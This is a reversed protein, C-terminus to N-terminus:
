TLSDTASSRRSRRRLPRPAHTRIRPTCPPKHDGFILCHRVNKRAYTRGPTEPRQEHKMVPDEAPSEILARCNRARHSQPCGSLREHAVVGDGAVDAWVSYPQSEAIDNMVDVADLVTVVGDGDVDGPLVSFNLGLNSLLPINSTVSHVGSSSTGNLALMLQDVGLATPLTWTAEHATSNYQFKSFPYLPLKAGTLALVGETLNVNDSFVIDIASIDTFPLDRHLNMISMTEKGWHIDVDTVKPHVTLTGPAFQFVYNTASLTGQTVTITYVGAADNANAPTSFSPAGSLVAQTDNRVFGTVTYSPTQISDGHNIDLNGATVTLTAATITM